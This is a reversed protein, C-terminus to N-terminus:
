CTLEHQFYTLCKTTRSIALMILSNDLASSAEATNGSLPLEGRALFLATWKAQGSTESSDPFERKELVNVPTEKDWTAPVREKGVM